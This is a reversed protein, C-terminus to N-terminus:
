AETSKCSKPTALSCYRWQDGAGSLRREQEAESASPRHGGCMSWVGGDSVEWDLLILLHQTSRNFGRRITNCFDGHLLQPIFIRLLRFRFSRIRSDVNRM